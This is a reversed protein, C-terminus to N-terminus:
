SAGGRTVFLRELVEATAPGVRDRVETLDDLTDVDVRLSDLHLESLTAGAAQAAARHLRASEPGFATSIVGIPHLGLATTGGDESAVVVVGPSALTNLVARVDRAQLQPLDGPLVLAASARGALFTLALAVAANYGVGTDRIVEAAHARAISDYVADASVVVVTGAHAERIAALVDDLMAIVLARRADASLHTGLRSKARGADQVAVIVATGHSM